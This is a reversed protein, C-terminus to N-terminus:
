PQEGSERSLRSAVLALLEEDRVKTASRTMPIEGEDFFLVRKPVKYSAVRGRLFDQIEEATASAGEKLTVCLVVMQDLRPDPVGVVRALKV